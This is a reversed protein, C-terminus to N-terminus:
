TLVEGMGSIRGMICLEVGTRGGCHEGTTGNGGDGPAGDGRARSNRDAAEGAAHLSTLAGDKKGLRPLWPNPGNPRSPHQFDFFRTRLLLKFPQPISQPHCASRSCNLARVAVGLGALVGLVHLRELTRM